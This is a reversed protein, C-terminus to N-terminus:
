GCTQTNLQKRVHKARTFLNAHTPMASAGLVSRLRLALGRQRLQRAAAVRQDHDRAVRRQRGAVRGRVHVNDVPGHEDERM